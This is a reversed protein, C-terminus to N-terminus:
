SSPRPKRSPQRLRAKLGALMAAKAIRAAAGIKHAAELATQLGSRDNQAM